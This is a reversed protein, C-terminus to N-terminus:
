PKRSPRVLSVTIPLQLRSWEEDSTVAERNHLAASAICVRDALSLNNSEPFQLTAVAACIRSDFPEFELTIISRLQFIEQDSFGQRRLAFVVELFNVESVAAGAVMADEVVQYGREEKAYAILASADLQYM